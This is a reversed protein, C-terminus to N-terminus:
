SGAPPNGARLDNRNRIQQGEIEVELAKKRLDQMEREYRTLGSSVARSIDQGMKGMTSGFDTGVVVPQGTPINAGLAALPNIGARKADEVRWRIGQQAFERQFALARKQQKKGLYYDLLSGGAGISLGGAIKDLM